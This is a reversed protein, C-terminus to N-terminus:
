NIPFSNLYKESFLIFGIWKIKEKIKKKHGQEEEAAINVNPCPTM